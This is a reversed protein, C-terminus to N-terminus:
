RPKVAALPARQLRVLLARRVNMLAPRYEDDDSMLAIASEIGNLASTLGVQTEVCETEIQRIVREM